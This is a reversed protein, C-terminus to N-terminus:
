LIPNTIIIEYLIIFYADDKNRRRLAHKVFLIKFFWININYALVHAFYLIYSIIKANHYLAFVVSLFVASLNKFMRM